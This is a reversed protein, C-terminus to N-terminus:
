SDGETSDDTDDSAESGDSRPMFHTLVATGIILLVWVLFLYIVIQPVGFHSIPQNFIYVLPPVLLLAGFGTLVLMGSALKRPEPARAKARPM